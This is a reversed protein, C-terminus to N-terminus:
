SPHPSLAPMSCEPCNGVLNSTAPVNLSPTYRIIRVFDLSEYSAALVVDASNKNINKVRGVTLNPPLVKDDGTTVIRDGISINESSVLFKLLPTTTTNGTLIGRRGSPEIVVPIRSNLDTLLLIRASNDGLSIVRGVLGSGDIVAAGDKIGDRRGVNVLITESFPSASDAIVDATVYRLRPALKVNNLARLRANEQELQQAAERWIRLQQIELRLRNNRVYVDRFDNANSLFDLMSELPLSANEFVPVITDVIHMRVNELRSSQSQWLIYVILALICCLFISIRRILQWFPSVRESPQQM